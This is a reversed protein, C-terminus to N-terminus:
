WTRENKNCRKESEDKVNHIKDDDKTDNFEKKQTIKENFNPDLLHPYLYSKKYDFTKKELESNKKLWANNIEDKYSFNDEQHQLYELLEKRNMDKIEKQGGGRLFIDIRNRMHKM